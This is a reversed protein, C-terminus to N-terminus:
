SSFRPVHDHKLSCLGVGWVILATFVLVVIRDHGIPTFRECAAGFEHRVCEKDQEIKEDHLDEDIEEYGDNYIGEQSLSVVKRKWQLLVVHLLKDIDPGLIVWLRCAEDWNGGQVCKYPLKSFTTISRIEHDKCFVYFVVSTETTFEDAEKVDGKVILKFLYHEVIHKLLKGVFDVEHVEVLLVDILQRHSLFCNLLNCTPSTDFIGTQGSERSLRLIALEVKLLSHAIHASEIRLDLQHHIQLSIENTHM